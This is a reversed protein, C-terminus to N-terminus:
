QQTSFEMAKATLTALERRLTQDVLSSYNTSWHEFASSM